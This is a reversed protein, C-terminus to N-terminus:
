ILLVKKENAEKQFKLKLKRTFVKGISLNLNLTSLLILM